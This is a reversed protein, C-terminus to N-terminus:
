WDRKWIYDRRTLNSPRQLLAKGTLYIVVFVAFVVLISWAVVGEFGIIVVEDSCAALILFAAASGIDILLNIWFLPLRLRKKVPKSKV